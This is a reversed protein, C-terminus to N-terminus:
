STGDDRWAQLISSVRHCSAHTKGNQRHFRSVEFKVFEADVIGMPVRVLYSVYLWSLVTASSTTSILKVDLLSVSLGLPTIWSYPPPTKASEPLQPGCAGQLELVFVVCMKWRVLAGWGLKTCPKCFIPSVLVM